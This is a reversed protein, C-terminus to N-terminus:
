YTECWFSAALDKGKLFITICQQLTSLQMEPSPLLGPSFLFNGLEDVSSRDTESTPSWSTIFM